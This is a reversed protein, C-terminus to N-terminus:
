AEGEDAEPAVGGFLLAGRMIESFVPAAVAGGSYNDSKPEDVMVAVVYRPAAAPAMGVFFARYRASDYSGEFEKKATGTKGAVAFGPVAARWGTGGPAAARTLMARVERATEASIVRKRASWPPTGADLRPAVMRGDAAFVSYARLLQLLTVSLGYGYAHTAFGESGWAAANKLRGRGEEVLGLVPGRALGLERYFDELAEAGARRALLVAGVNSSKQVVEAVNVDERLHSDRLRLRGATVGATTPLLEDPRALGRELALAAVFPKVVSGPEVVDALAHNVENALEERTLRNPNFAPYNALALVDGTEVEMLIASASKANFRKVASKLASFVVFQMGRDLTVHVDRGNVAPRYVVEAVAKGRTVINRLVGDYADLREGKAFEVGSRGKEAFDTYGLVHSFIEKDPYFRRSQYIMNVGHIGQAMAAKAQRFSANKRLYAFGEAGIMKARVDAFPMELAQAIAAAEREARGGDEERSAEGGPLPSWEINYVDSSMALATQSNGERGVISGRHAPLVRSAYHTWGFREELAGRLMQLRAYGAMVVGVFVAPLVLCVMRRRGQAIRPPRRTEGGPGNM